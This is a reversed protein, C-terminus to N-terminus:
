INKRISFQIKNNTLKATVPIEKVEPNIAIFFSIVTGFTSLIGIGTKEEAKERLKTDNGGLMNIIDAADQYDKAKSFNDYALYGCGVTLLLVSLRPYENIKMTKGEQPFSYQIESDYLINGAPNRINRIESVHFATAINNQSSFIKITDNQCYVLFGQYFASNKTIITVNTGLCSKLMDIKEQDFNPLVANADAFYILTLFLMLM